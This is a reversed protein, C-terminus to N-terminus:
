SFCYRLDVNQDNSIFTLFLSRNERRIKFALVCIRNCLTEIDLCLVILIHIPILKYHNPTQIPLLTKRTDNKM